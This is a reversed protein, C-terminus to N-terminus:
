GTSLNLLPLSTHPNLLRLLLVLLLTKFRNSGTLNVTQFTIISFTVTTLNLNQTHPVIALTWVIFKLKVDVKSAARKHKLPIGYERCFQLLVVFSYYASVGNSVLSMVAIVVLLSRYGIELVVNTCRNIDFGITLGKSSLSM